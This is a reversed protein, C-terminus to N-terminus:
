SPVEVRLGDYALRVGEPLDSNLKDHDFRHNIHTLLARRPRLDEIVELAQDLCFHTPHPEFGLANIILLDLNQLRDRSREPLGSCDTLYAAQGLRYGQIMLSGHEVDVPTVEVGGLTFSRGDLLVPDLQSVGGGEPRAGNFIYDFNKRLMRLTGEGAYVPIRTQNYYNFCRLEDIGNVHDAHHHTYLVADIRRIDHLLCQQRLDVSTDVLIRYEGNEVLISSRLRKNKPHDSRCVPCPCCLSPVGTSTGTGLFLIHM